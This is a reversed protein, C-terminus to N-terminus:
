VNKRVPPKYETVDDIDEGRDDESMLMIDPHDNEVMESAAEATDAEVFYQRNLTAFTRVVFRKKKPPLAEALTQALDVHSLADTLKVM